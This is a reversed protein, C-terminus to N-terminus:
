QFPLLQLFKNRHSHYREFKQLMKVHSFITKPSGNLSFWMITPKNKNVNYCLIVSPRVTL